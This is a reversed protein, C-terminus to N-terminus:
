ISKLLQTFNQAQALPEKFGTASSFIEAQGSHGSKPTVWYLVDGSERDCISFSDYLPGAGPCNNKFFVYVRSCDIPTGKKRFYNVMKVVKNQLAKARGPLSEDRCFWDYFDHCHSYLASEGQGWAYMQDTLTVQKEQM